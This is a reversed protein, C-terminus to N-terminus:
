VAAQVVQEFNDLLLLLRKLHLGAKLHELPSQGAVEPIGLTQTITPIVFAPDSIPALNVFYVGDAFHTQMMGAVELSLRTKGIGGTGLLTLLRVDPRSLQACVAAVEQNRGILPTLLAPLPASARSGNM